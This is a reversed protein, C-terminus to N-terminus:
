RQLRRQKPHRVNPPLRDRFNLRHHSHRLCEKSLPYVLSRRFVQQIHLQLADNSLLQQIQVVIGM